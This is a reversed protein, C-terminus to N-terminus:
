CGDIHKFVFGNQLPMRQQSQFVANTRRVNTIHFLVAVLQVETGCKVVHDIEDFARGGVDDVRASQLNTALFGCTSKTQKFM